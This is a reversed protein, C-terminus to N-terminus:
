YLWLASQMPCSRGIQLSLDPWSLALRCPPACLVKPLRPVNAVLGLQLSTALTLLLLTAVAFAQWAPAPAPRAAESLVIKFAVRTGGRPDEGAEADPDKIM